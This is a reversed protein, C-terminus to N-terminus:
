HPPLRGELRSAVYTTVDESNAYGGSFTFGFNRAGEFHPVQYLLDISRSSCATPEKCRPRSNGGFLNNRTIDALV